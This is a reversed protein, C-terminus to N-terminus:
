CPWLTPVSPTMALQGRWACARAPAVLRWHRIPAMAAPRHPPSCGAATEGPRPMKSAIAALDMSISGFVTIM